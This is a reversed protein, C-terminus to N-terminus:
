TLMLEACQRLAHTQYHTTEGGSRSNCQSLPKTASLTAHLMLMRSAPALQNILQYTLM